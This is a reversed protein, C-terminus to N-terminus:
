DIAELAVTLNKRTGANIDWFYSVDQNPGIRNTWPPFSATYVAPAPVKFVITRPSGAAGQFITTGIAPPESGLIITSLSTCSEFVSGQTPSGFDTAKPLYVTVLNTCGNFAYSAISIAESLSVTELKACRDFTRTGIGTVRPLNVTTLNACRSFASFGLETVNPLNVTELKTCGGFASRGVTEAKSLSVETISTGEFANTGVSRVEPLDILALTTVSRFTYNGLDTVGAARFEKLNTFGAFFPNNQTGAPVATLSNPLILATIFIRGEIGARIESIGSELLDLAVYKGGADVAEYVAQLTEAGTYVVPYPTEVTNDPKGTLYAELAGAGAFRIAKIERIRTKLSDLKAKEAILLERAGASLAEWATLAADVAEEDSLAITDVTKELVAGQAAIFADAEERASPGSNGGALTDCGGFVLVLILCALLGAHIPYTKM